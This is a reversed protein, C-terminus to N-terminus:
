VCVGRTRSARQGGVAGRLLGRQRLLISRLRPAPGPLLGGPVSQVAAGPVVSNQRPAGAAVVRVGGPRGSPRGAVVGPVGRGHRGLGHPGPRVQPRGAVRGRVPGRERVGGDRPREERGGGVGRHVPVRGQGSLDPHGARAARGRGVGRRLHGDRRAHDAPGARSVQRGPAGRHPDHRQAVHLERGRQDHGVADRGRLPPRGDM